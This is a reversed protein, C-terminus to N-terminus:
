IYIQFCSLISTIINIIMMSTISLMRFKENKETKYSILWMCLFLINFILYILPRNLVNNLTYTLYYFYDADYVVRGLIAVGLRYLRLLVYLLTVVLAIIGFTNSAHKNNAVRLSTITAPSSNRIHTNVRVNLAGCHPCQRASDSIEAGCMPCKVIAM